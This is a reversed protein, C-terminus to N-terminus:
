GIAVTGFNFNVHGLFVFFLQSYSPNKKFQQGDSLRIKKKIEEIYKMQLLKNNHEKTTTNNVVSKKL